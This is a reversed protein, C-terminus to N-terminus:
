NRPGDVALPPIIANVRSGDPLRADVLPSSEDIRRGVASVIREIVQRLHELSVFRADTLHLQGDREIYIADDGNVMVETVQDDALFSEIPGLGLIDASISQVLQHREDSSLQHLEGELVADLEQVVYGHLQREDLSSDFLRSGLREALATNAKVKIKALPDERRVHSTPVAQEFMASQPLFGDDSGSSARLRSGIGM